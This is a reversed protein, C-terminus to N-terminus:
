GRRSSRCVGLRLAVTSCAGHLVRPLQPGALLMWPSCRCTHPSCLRGPAHSRSELRVQALQHETRAEDDDTAFVGFDVEAGGEADTTDDTSHGRGSREGYRAATTVDAATALLTRAECVSAAMTEPDASDAKTIVAFVPIDLALAAALHERSTHSGGTCANVCFM